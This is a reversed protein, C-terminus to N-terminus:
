AVLGLLQHAFDHVVVSSQVKLHWTIYHTRSLACDTALSICSLVIEAFHNPMTSAKALKLRVIMCM